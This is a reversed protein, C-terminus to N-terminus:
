NQCSILIPLLVPIDFMKFLCAVISFVKSQSRTVNSILVLTGQMHMTSTFSRGVNSLLCTSM